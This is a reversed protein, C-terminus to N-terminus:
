KSRLQESSIARSRQRLASWGWYLFLMGMVMLPPNKQSGIYFFGLGALLCAYGKVLGANEPHRRIYSRAIFWTVIGVVVQIGILVYSLMLNWRGYIRCMMDVRCDQLWARVGLKAEARPAPSNVLRRGAEAEVGARYGM